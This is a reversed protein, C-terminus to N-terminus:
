SRLLDQSEAVVQELKAAYDKLTAEARMRDWSDIGIVIGILSGDSLRVELGISLKRRDTKEEIRCLAEVLITSPLTMLTLASGPHAIGSQLVVWSSHCRHSPVFAM